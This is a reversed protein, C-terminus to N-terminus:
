RLLKRFFHIKKKLYFSMSDINNTYKKNVPEVEYRCAFDFRITRMLHRIYTCSMDECHKRVHPTVKLCNYFYRLQEQGIDLQESSRSGARVLQQVSRHRTLFENIFEVDAMRTDKNFNNEIHHEEVFNFTIKRLATFTLGGSMDHFAVCYKILETEQQPTFTIQVGSSPTKSIRKLRKRLTSEPIGLYRAVKRKSEGQSVLERAKEIDPLWPQELGKRECVEVKPEIKTEENTVQVEQIRILRCCTLFYIFNVKEEM